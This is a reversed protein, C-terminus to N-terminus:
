AQEPSSALSPAQKYFRPQLAELKGPTLIRVSQFILIQLTRDGEQDTKEELLIRGDKTMARQLSVKYQVGAKEVRIQPSTNLISYGSKELESIVLDKEFVTWKLAQQVRSRECDPCRKGAWRSGWQDIYIKSGDKLKSGTWIWNKNQACYNCYRTSQNPSQM